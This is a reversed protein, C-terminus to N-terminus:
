QVFFKFATFSKCYSDQCIGLIFRDEPRLRCVPCNECASYLHNFQSAQEWLEYDACPKFFVSPLAKKHCDCLSSFIESDCRGFGQEFANRIAAKAQRMEVSAKQIAPNSPRKEHHMANIPHMLCIIGATLMASM